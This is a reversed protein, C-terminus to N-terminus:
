LATKKALKFVAPALLVTYFSSILLNRLFIGAPVGGSAMGELGAAANLGTVFNNLLAAALVILLRVYFDETSIQRSVRYVLYVLAGFCFTNVAVGRFLFLDKALGSLTGFLFATKFDAYFVLSVAFALLLDPKCYFFDLFAPWALELTTLVVIALPIYIKRM